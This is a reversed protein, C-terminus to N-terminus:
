PRLRENIELKDAEPNPAVRESDRKFPEDKAVPGRKWADIDTELVGECGETSEIVIPKTM